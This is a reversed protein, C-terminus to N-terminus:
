AAARQTQTEQERDASSQTPHPSAPLSLDADPDQFIGVLTSMKMVSRRENPFFLDARATAKGDGAEEEGWGVGVRLLNM